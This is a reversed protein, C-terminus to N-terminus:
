GYSFALIYNPEVKLQVADLGRGLQPMLNNLQLHIGAGKDNRRVKALKNFGSTQNRQRTHRCSGAHRDLLLWTSRTISRVGGLRQTQRDRFRKHQMCILHDFLNPWHRIKPSLPCKTIDAKPPLASMRFHPGCYGSIVWLSTVRQTKQPLRGRYEPGNTPKRNAKSRLLM